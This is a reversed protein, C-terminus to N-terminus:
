KQAFRRRAGVGGSQRGDGGRHWVVLLCAWVDILVGVGSDFAWVHILVVLCSNVRGCSLYVRACM